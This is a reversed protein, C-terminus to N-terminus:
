ERPEPPEVSRYCDLAIFIGISIVAWMPLYIACIAGLAAYCWTKM